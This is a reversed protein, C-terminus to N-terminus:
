ARDHPVEPLTLRLVSVMDAGDIEELRVMVREDRATPISKGIYDPRIPLERHGRDILTALQILSPRGHEVLADLAARVTRGTFIVEDVLIVRRDTLDLPIFTPRSNTVVNTRTDDRHLSIDLEGVPIVGGEIQSIQEALRKALPVGRTHIGVIVLNRIGRNREVIEHAIRTIARRIDNADLIQRETQTPM